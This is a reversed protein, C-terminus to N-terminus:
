NPLQADLCNVTMSVDTVTANAGGTKRALCYINQYYTQPVNFFCTTTVEKMRNDPIAADPIMANAPINNFGLTRECAGNPLPNVNNLSLTFLYVHPPGFYGPNAFDASCVATCYRPMVANVPVSRLVTWAAGVPQDANTASGGAADAALLNPSLLALSAPLALAILTKLIPGETHQRSSQKLTMKGSSM